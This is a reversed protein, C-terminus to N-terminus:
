FDGTVEKVQSFYLENRPHFIWNTLEEFDDRNFHNTITQELQSIKIWQYDGEDCPAFEGSPNHVACVRMYKDELLQHDEDSYVLYHKM